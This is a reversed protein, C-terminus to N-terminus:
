RTTVGEGSRETDISIDRYSFTLELATGLVLHAAEVTFAPGDDNDAVAQIHDGIHAVLRHDQIM